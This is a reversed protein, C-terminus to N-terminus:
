GTAEEARLEAILARTAHGRARPDDTSRANREHILDRGYRARARRRVADTPIGLRVAVKTDLQYADVWLRSAVEAIPPPEPEPEPLLDNPTIGFIAALDVLEGPTVNRQGNLIRSVSPPTWWHSRAVMAAALDLQTWGLARRRADIQRAVHMRVSPELPGDSM